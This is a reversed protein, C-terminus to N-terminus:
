SIIAIIFEITLMTPLFRYSQEVLVHVKVVLKKLLINM